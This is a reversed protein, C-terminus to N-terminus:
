FELRSTNNSANAAQSTVQEAYEKLDESVMFAELLNSLDSFGFRAYLSPHLKGRSVVEAQGIAATLVVGVRIEKDRSGRGGM